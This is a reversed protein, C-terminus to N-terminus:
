MSTDPSNALMVESNPVFAVAAPQHMPIWTNLVKDIMTWSMTFSPSGPHVGIWIISFNTALTIDSEHIM